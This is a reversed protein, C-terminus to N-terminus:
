DFYRRMWLEFTLLTWLAQGLDTTGQIHAELMQEVAEIRFYGRQTARQGLLVDQVYTRLKGRFWAGVPVGFGHKKREIIKAPLIGQLAKKLIFKSVGKKLKLSAPIHAAFNVMQHDLFPSRVELSNAMSMRDAKVLLDDPLYTNLNLSLLHSVIDSESEIHQSGFLEQWHEIIRAEAEPGLLDIVWRSSVYRVWSLYQEAVPMNLTDVFRNARRVIGGYQASEPFLGLAGRIARQAIPPVFREYSDTLIAARFRDYGAFLEDGGDGTLAVTVYQRALKSILYTPIASSDGFPQDHHWVLEDALEIVDPQVIFEHHDTVYRAAVERAYATEDFSPEGAFGISFTKVPKSSEEAMLAVIAASDLGGSLFAGLSVDSILRMRIAWRLHALLDAAVNDETRLDTEASPYPPEWYAELAVTPQAGSMNITLTHGPPLSKIGEFLTEPAPPYGYALYAPIHIENPQRSIAPHELIAKIESGFVFWDDTLAYYLPKKGLRDRMLILKQLSSDWIACAFMGRFPKIFNKAGYQLYARLLTETDSNSFFNHKSAKLVSRIEGFNYVEGNYTIWAKAKGNPHGPSTNHSVLMPQHAASSLDIVALRVNGLGCPGDIVTGTDDPGRHRIIQTMQKLSNEDPRQGKLALMGCIGCM